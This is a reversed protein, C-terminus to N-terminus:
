ITADVGDTVRLKWGRSRAAAGARAQLHALAQADFVVPRAALQAARMVLDVLLAGLQRGRSAVLAEAGGADGAHLGRRVGGERREKGDDEQGEARAEGHLKSLLFSLYLLYEFCTCPPDM